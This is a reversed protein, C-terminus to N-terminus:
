LIQCINASSIHYVYVGQLHSGHGWWTQTTKPRTPHLLKLLAVNASGLPICTETVMLMDLKHDIIHVM